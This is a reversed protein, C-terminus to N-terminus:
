AGDHITVLEARATAEANVSRSKLGALGSFVLLYRSKGTLLDTSLVFGWLAHSVRDLMGCM